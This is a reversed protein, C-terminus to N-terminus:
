EHRYLPESDRLTPSLATAPRGRDSYPISGAEKSSMRGPHKSMWSRILSMFALPTRPDMHKGEIGCNQPCSKARVSSLSTAAAM